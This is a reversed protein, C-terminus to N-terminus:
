LKGKEQLLFPIYHCGSVMVALCDRDHIANEAMCKKM